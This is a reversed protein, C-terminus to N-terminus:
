LVKAELVRPTRASSWWRRLAIPSMLVVAFWGAWSTVPSGVLSIGSDFLSSLLSIVKHLGSFLIFSQVKCPFRGVSASCILPPSFLMRTM